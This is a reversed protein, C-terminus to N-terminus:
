FRLHTALSSLSARLCRIEDSEQKEKKLLCPSSLIFFFFIYVIFNFSLVGKRHQIERVASNKQMWCRSSDLQKDDFTGWQNESRGM